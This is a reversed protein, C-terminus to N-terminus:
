GDIIHVNITHYYYVASIITYKVMCTDIFPTFRTTVARIHAKYETCPKTCIKKSFFWKWM